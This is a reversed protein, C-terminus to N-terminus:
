SSSKTIFTVPQPTGGGPASPILIDDIAKRRRRLDDDDDDHRDRSGPAPALPNPIWSDADELELPEGGPDFDAQDNDGPHGGLMPIGPLDTRLQQREDENVVLFQIWQIDKIDHPAFQEILNISPQQSSAMPYWFTM